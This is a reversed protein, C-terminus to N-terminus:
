ATVSPNVPTHRALLSVVAAVAEPVAASVPDTLGIGESVDEPVCGVVYTTPLEGGLTRLRGLVAAPNMGHPDLAARGDLDESRIRMVRISGAASGPQEGGELPPGPESPVADVLVLVDVDDLLDYALHMGRIGYDVVHVDSALLSSESALRRAVEPGFGDDRLFINGVGAVLVRAAVPPAHAASAEAHVPNM